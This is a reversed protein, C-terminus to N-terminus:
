KNERFDNYARVISNYTDITTGSKGNLWNSFTAPNVGARLLIKRVTYGSGEIQKKINEPKIEEM